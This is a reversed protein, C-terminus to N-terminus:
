VNHVCNGTTQTRHCHQRGTANLFVVDAKKLAVGWPIHVKCTPGLVHLVHAESDHCRKPITNRQSEKEKQPVTLNVPGPNQIPHTNVLFMNRGASKNQSSTSSLNNSKGLYSDTLSLNDQIHSPSYDMSGKCSDAILSAFRHSSPTSTITENIQKAHQLAFRHKVMDLTGYDTGSLLDCDELQQKLRDRSPPTNSM